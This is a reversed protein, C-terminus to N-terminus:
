PRRRPLTAAGHDGLSDRLCDESCFVEQEALPVIGRTGIVGEQLALVDVGLDLEKGCHTCNM